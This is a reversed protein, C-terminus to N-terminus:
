ILQNMWWTLGKLEPYHVSVMCRSLFPPGPAPAYCSSDSSATCALLQGNLPGSGMVMWCFDTLYWLERGKESILPPLITSLQRFYFICNFNFRSLVKVRTYIRSWPFHYLILCSCTCTSQLYYPMLPYKIVWIFHQESHCKWSSTWFTHSLSFRTLNELCINVWWIM